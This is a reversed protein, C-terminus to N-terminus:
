RIRKNNYNYYSPYEYNSTKEAKEPNQDWPEDQVGANMCWPQFDIRKSKECQENKKLEM